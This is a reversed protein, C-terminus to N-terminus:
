PAVWVLSNNVGLNDLTTDDGVFILKGIDLKFAEIIDANPELMAGLAVPLDDIYLDVSWQGTQQYNLRLEVLNDGLQIDIIQHSNQAGGKLPIQTM